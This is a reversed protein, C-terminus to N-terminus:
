VLYVLINLEFFLSNKSILSKEQHYYSSSKIQYIRLTLMFDKKILVSRKTELHIRNNIRICSCTNLDAFSNIIKFEVLKSCGECYVNTIEIDSYIVNSNFLFLSM